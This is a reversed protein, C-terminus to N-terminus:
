APQGGSRAAVPLARRFRCWAYAVALCVLGTVILGIGTTMLNKALELYFVFVRAALALTALNTGLKSGSEAAAMAVAICLGAFM